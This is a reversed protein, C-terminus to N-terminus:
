SFTPGSPMRTDSLIRIYDDDSLVDPGLHSSEIGGPLDTQNVVKL